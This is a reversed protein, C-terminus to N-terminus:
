GIDEDSLRPLRLLAHLETTHRFDDLADRSGSEVWPDTTQLAVRQIWRQRQLKLEHIALLAGGTDSCSSGIVSLARPLSFFPPAGADGGRAKYIM